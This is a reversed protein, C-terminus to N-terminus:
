IKKINVTLHFKGNPSRRKEILVDCEEEVNAIHEIAAHMSVGAVGPIYGPKTKADIEDRELPEHSSTSSPNVM